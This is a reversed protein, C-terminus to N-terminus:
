AAAETSRKEAAAKLADVRDLQEWPFDARGFHGYAASPRYIPRLLNLAEVIARPRLDFVERVLATLEKDPM